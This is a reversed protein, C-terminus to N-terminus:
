RGSTKPFQWAVQVENKLSPLNEPERQLGPRGGRQGNAAPDSETPDIGGQILIKPDDLDVPRYYTKNSGDFDVVSLKKAWRDPSL